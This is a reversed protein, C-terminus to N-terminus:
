FTLNNDAAYRALQVNNKLGTKELIRSRYTTITSASLNLAAAIATLPEGKALLCLVELERNTLLDHQPNKEGCFIGALRDSMTASVFKGGSAVKTIADVITKIDSNKSLFGAAGLKFARVGYISEEYMSFILVAMKPQESLIRKLLELGPKDPLGLDLLAVDFKSHRVLDIAAKATGAEGTVEIEPVSGLMLRIGNRVIEHDDVILLSIKKETM